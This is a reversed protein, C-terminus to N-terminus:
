YCGVRVSNSWQAIPYYWHIGNWSFLPFIIESCHWGWWWVCGRAFLLVHGSLASLSANLRTTFNFDVCRRGSQATVVRQGVAEGSLGGTLFNIAGRVGVLVRLVWLDVGVWGEAYGTLYGEPTARVYQDSGNLSVQTSVDLGGIVGIRGYVCIPV